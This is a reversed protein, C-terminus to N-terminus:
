LSSVNDIKIEFLNELKPQQLNQLELILVVGTVLVSELSCSNQVGSELTTIM